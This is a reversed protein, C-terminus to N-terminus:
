ASRRLVQWDELEVTIPDKSTTRQMAEGLARMPRHDGCFEVSNGEEDKGWGFGITSWAPINIRSITVLM